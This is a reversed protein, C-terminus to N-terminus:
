TAGNFVVCEITPMLAGESYTKRACVHAPYELLEPPIDTRLQLANKPVPYWVRDILVEMGTDPVAANPRLKTPRCEGISCPCKGHFFKQYLDHLAPHEFGEDGLGLTEAFAAVPIFLSSLIASCSALLCRRHITWNQVLPM